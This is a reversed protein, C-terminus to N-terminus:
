YRSNLESLEISHLNSASVLCPYFRPVSDTAGGAAPLEEVVLLLYFDQLRGLFHVRPKPQQTARSPSSGPLPEPVHCALDGEIALNSVVQLNERALRRVDARARRQGYWSPFILFATAMLVLVGGPLMGNLFLRAYLRHRQTAQRIGLSRIYRYYVVEAAFALCLLGFVVVASTRSFLEQAPFLMDRQTPSTLDRSFIDYSSVLRFALYALFLSLGRFLWTDRDRWTGLNFLEAVTDFWRDPFRSLFVWIMFASFAVLFDTLLPLATAVPWLGVRFGLYNLYSQQYVVNIVAYIVVLLASRALFDDLVGRRHRGSTAARDAVASQPNTPQPAQNESLRGTQPNEILTAQHVSFRDM